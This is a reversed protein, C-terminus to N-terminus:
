SKLFQTFIVYAFCGLFFIITVICCMYKFCIYIYELATECITECSFNNNESTILPESDIDIIVDDSIKKRCEPCTPQKDKWTKICDYHYTHKCKLAIIKKDDNELCIACIKESDELDM